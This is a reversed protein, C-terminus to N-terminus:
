VIGLVPLDSIAADIFHPSIEPRGPGPGIVIADCDFEHTEGRGDIIEVDCGLSQLAHIINHSFSDLNDIFAIKLDFKIGEPPNKQELYPYIALEGKNLAIADPNLWGCARRLAAAKWAAEAVESEPNSEITIGGSGNGKRVM